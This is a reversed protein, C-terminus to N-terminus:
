YDVLCIVGFEPQLLKEALEESAHKVNFMLNQSYGTNASTLIPHAVLQFSKTKAEERLKTPLNSLLDQWYEMIRSSVEGQHVLQRYEIIDIVYEM